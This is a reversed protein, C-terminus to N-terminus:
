ALIARLSGAGEGMLIIIEILSIFSLFAFSQLFLESIKKSPSKFLNKLHSTIYLTYTVELKPIDQQNEPDKTKVVLICFDQFLTPSSVIMVIVSM